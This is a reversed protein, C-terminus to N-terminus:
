SRKQCTPCYYTGRGAIKIKKFKSQKCRKCVEGEKGYSLTYNQYSGEGGDPTVFSLESSGGRKIGERLVKEIAKFLVFAERRNIKNASTEPYIKALWLADNAYINGVGSIGLLELM